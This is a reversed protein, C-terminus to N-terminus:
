PGRGLPLTRVLTQTVEGQLQLLAARPRDYSASWLVKGDSVQVLQANIRLAQGDGRISGELVRAVGLERGIRTAPWDLGKYAFVRSRVQVQLTRQQGLADILQETMGDALAEADMADTLDLFPLVALSGVPASSAPADLSAERGPEPAEERDATPEVAPLLRYGQRPM